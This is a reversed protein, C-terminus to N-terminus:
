YTEELLPMVLVDEGVLLLQLRSLRLVWTLLNHQAKLSVGHLGIGNTAMLIHHQHTGCKADVMHLEGQLCPKGHVLPAFANRDKLHKTLAGSLNIYSILPHQATHDHTSAPRHAHSHAPRLPTPPYGTQPPGWSVVWYVWIRSAPSHLCGKWDVVADVAHAVACLVYVPVYARSQANSHGSAEDATFIGKAM